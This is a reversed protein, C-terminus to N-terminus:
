MLGLQRLRQNLGKVSVRLAGAMSERDGGHLDLAAVLEDRTLQSPKRIRTSKDVLRYLATRSIGLAHATPQFLWQNAALAELLEDENIESAPRFKAKTSAKVPMSGLAGGTSRRRNQRPLDFSSVPEEALPQDSQDALGRDSDLLQQARRLVEKPRADRATILLQRVVNRLERVNGPWPHVALLSVISARLWPRVSSIPVDPAVPEGMDELGQRIFHFLLLGIDDLRARLPPLFIGFGSLRHLLPARFRGDAIHRELDADTAAVLRVDVVKPTAHGVGQIEGTELARLLLPQIELPTEGIEDLFLTGKHARGFHGERASVAGTFAGKASGFLESAALSAPVAALNVSVMPGNRRLGSHHLARAVVEKGTGTEGRLLVPVDLSAVRDIDRRLQIMAESQGVLGFSEDSREPVPDRLHLLLVISNALQIVVGKDLEDMTLLRRDSVPVNGLSVPTSTKECDLEIGYSKLKLSLPTRSLHPDALPQRSRGPGGFHPELRSIKVEEGSVLATLVAVEGVRRHDDHFLITLWPVSLQTWSSSLIRQPRTDAALDGWRDDIKSQRM